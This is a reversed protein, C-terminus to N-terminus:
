RAQKLGDPGAKVVKRVQSPGDARELMDNQQQREDIRQRDRM